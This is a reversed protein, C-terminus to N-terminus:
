FGVIKKGEPVEVYTWNALTDQTSWNAELIVDSDTGSMFKLGWISNKDESVMAGIKRIEKTTDINATQLKMEKANDCAAFPTMVVDEPASATGIIFFM